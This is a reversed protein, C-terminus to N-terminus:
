FFPTPPIQIDASYVHDFLPQYLQAILSLGNIPLSNLTPQGSGGIAPIVPANAPSTPTSIM